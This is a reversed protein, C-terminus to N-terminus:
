LRGEGKGDILEDRWLTRKLTEINSAFKLSDKSLSLKDGLAFYSMLMTMMIMM